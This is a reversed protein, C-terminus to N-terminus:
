RLVFCFFTTLNPPSVWDKVNVFFAPPHLVHPFPLFFGTLDRFVFRAAYVM